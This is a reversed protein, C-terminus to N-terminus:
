LVPNVAGAHGFFHRFQVLVGKPLIQVTDVLLVEPDFGVSSERDEGEWGNEAESKLNIHALGPSNPTVQLWSKGQRIAM